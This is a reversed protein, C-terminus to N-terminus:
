ASLSNTETFNQIGDLLLDAWCETNVYTSLILVREVDATCQHKLQIAAPFPFALVSHLIHHLHPGAQLYLSSAALDGAGFSAWVSVVQGQRHGVKVEDDDCVIAIQQKAKIKYLSLVSRSKLVIFADNM